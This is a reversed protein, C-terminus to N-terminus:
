GYNLTVLSVPPMYWQVFCAITVSIPLPIQRDNPAYGRFEVRSILASALAPPILKLIIGQGNTRGLILDAALVTPRIKGVDTILCTVGAGIVLAIFANNLPDRDPLGFSVNSAGLTQNM